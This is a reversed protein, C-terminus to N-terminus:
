PPEKDVFVTATAAVVAANSTEPLELVQTSPETQLPSHPPTIKQPPQAEAGRPLQKPTTKGCYVANRQHPKAVTDEASHLGTRHPFEYGDM